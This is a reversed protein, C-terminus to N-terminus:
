LELDGEKESHKNLYDLLEARCGISNIYSDGVNLLMKVKEFHRFGGMDLIKRYLDPRNLFNAYSLARFFHLQTILSDRYDAYRFDYHLGNFVVTRGEYNPTMNFVEQYVELKKDIDLDIMAYMCLDVSVSNSLRVFLQISDDTEDINDYQMIIQRGFYSKCYEDVRNKIREINNM